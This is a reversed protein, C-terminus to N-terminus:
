IVELTDLYSRMSYIPFLEGWRITKIRNENDWKQQIYWNM